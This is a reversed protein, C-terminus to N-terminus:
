SAKRVMPKALEERLYEQTERYQTFVIFKETTNDRRVAEIARILTDFKRDTGDPVLGVLERVRASEGPLETEAYIVEEGEEDGDLAWATEEAAAKRALRQKVRAVHAGAEAWQAGGPLIGAIQIALTRMEQELAQIKEATGADARRDARGELAMQQRALLVLLRRRLAQRIARPSSAMIKQFTAMVFGIARQSSTTKTEGVGAVGYGERLYETLRDYFVRERHAMTFVQSHVQRRMFIPRGEPDTVERKIRRIMVRNLLGRHDLMSEPSDFLSDDLLQVLSWFQFADGQHPTASLFLLDRTTARLAEALRYNQTPSIRGGSRTRSLHHAEEFVILDWRTSVMREKRRPQKLRDISAIVRPHTEWVRPNTDTFDFGLVDFHLGFCEDLETQWNRTLGAPTVVLVREAEGRAVLERIVMGTEITKGLGVEDAILLRRRSAAVIDYTLLIQHPLLDARSSSLEGGSNALPFQFALQRLAFDLPDDTDGASLRGWLDSAVELRSLPLTELRRGAPGEFSIDVQYDPRADNVRLVEGVGLEPRGKVRVYSSVGIESM